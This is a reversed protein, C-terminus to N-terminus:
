YILVGMMMLSDELSVCCSDRVYEYIHWSERMMTIVDLESLSLHYFCEDHKTDKSMIHFCSIFLVHSLSFCCRFVNLIYISDVCWMNLYPHPFPLHGVGLDLSPFLFLAQPMALSKRKLNVACKEAQPVASDEIMVEQIRRESKLM